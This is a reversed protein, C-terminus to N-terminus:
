TLESARWAELLQYEIYGYKSYDKKAMVKYKVGDYYIFQNTELNLNPLCHVWLWQWSWSGEPLIKLQENSPPQVVGKTKLETSQTEVWESRQMTRTVTYFSIDLFWSTITSSMNPLAANTNNLLTNRASQIM